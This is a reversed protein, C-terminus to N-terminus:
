STCTPVKGSAAALEPIFPQGRRLSPGRPHLTMPWSVPTTTTGNRTGRPRPSGLCAVTSSPRISIRSWSDNPLNWRAAHSTNGRSCSLIRSRIASPSIRVSETLAGGKDPSAWGQYIDSARAGLIKRFPHREWRIPSQRALNPTSRHYESLLAQQAQEGSLRAYSILLDFLVPLAQGNLFAAEPLRLHKQGNDTKAAAVTRRIWSEMDAPGLLKGNLTKELEKLFELAHDKITADM